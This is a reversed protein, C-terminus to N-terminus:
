VEHEEKSLISKFSLRCGFKCSQLSMKLKPSTETPDKSSKENELFITRDVSFDIPLLQM